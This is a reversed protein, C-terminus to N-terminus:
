RAHSGPGPATAPPWPAAVLAVGAAPLAIRKLWRGASATWGPPRTLGTTSHIGLIVLAYALGEVKAISAFAASLTIERTATPREPDLLAPVAALMAFALLLDSQGGLRHGIAFRGIALAWISLLAGRTLGDAGTRALLERAIVFMLPLAALTPVLAAAVSEGGSLIGPLAAFDIGLCPYQPQYRFASNLTLFDADFGGVEAFRRAKLGWHFVFDPTVTQLRLTYVAVTACVALAVADGFTVGVGEPFPGPTSRLRRAVIAAAVACALLPAISWRLGLAGISELVLHLVLGGCLYARVLAEGRTSEGNWRWPFGGLVLILALAALAAVVSM